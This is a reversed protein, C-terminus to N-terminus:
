RVRRSQRTGSVSPLPLFVSPLSTMSHLVRRLACPREEVLLFPLASHRKELVRCIKATHWVASRLFHFPVASRAFSVSPIPQSRFKASHRVRPVRCLDLTRRTGSICCEAFNPDEGLAVSRASPSTQIKASHWVDPVRRLKM